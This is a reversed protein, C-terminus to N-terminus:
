VRLLLLQVSPIICVMAVTRNDKWSQEIRVNITNINRTPTPSCATLLIQEGVWVGVGIGASVGLLVLQRDQLSLQLVLYIETETQRQNKDTQGNVSNRNIVLRSGQYYYSWFWVSQYFNSM